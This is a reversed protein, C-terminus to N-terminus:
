YPSRNFFRFIRTNTSFGKTQPYTNSQFVKDHYKNLKNQHM